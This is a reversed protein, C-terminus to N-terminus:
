DHISFASVFMLFLVNYNSFSIQTQTQFFAEGRWLGVLLCFGCLPPPITSLVSVHIYRLIIEKIEQQRYFFSVTPIMSLPGNLPGELDDCKRSLQLRWTFPSWTVAAAPLYTLWHIISALSVFLRRLEQVFAFCCGLSTLWVHFPPLSSALLFWKWKQNQMSKALLFLNKAHNQM